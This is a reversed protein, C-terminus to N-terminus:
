FEDDTHSGKVFSLVYAKVMDGTAILRSSNIGDLCLLDCQYAMPILVTKTKEVRSTPRAIGKKPLIMEVM